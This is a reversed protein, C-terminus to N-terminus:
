RPSLDVRPIESDEADLETAEMVPTALRRSPPPLDPLAKDTPIPIPPSRKIVSQADLESIESTSSTPKPRRRRRLLCLALVGVILLVGATVGAGLGIKLKKSKDGDGTDSPGAPDWDPTPGLIAISSTIDAPSAATNSASATSKAASTDTSKESSTDTSKATSEATTKATSERPPTYSPLTVPPPSATNYGSATRDVGWSIYKSASENDMNGREDLFTGGHNECCDPVNDCCFSGNDCQTVVPFKHHVNEDSQTANAGSKCLTTKHARRKGYQCILACKEKDYPKKACPGRIFQNPPAGPKKCLRNSVCVADIGCCALSGPCVTNNAYSTGDFGYCHTVELGMNVQVPNARVTSFACAAALAAVAARALSVDM